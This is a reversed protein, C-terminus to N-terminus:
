VNVTHLNNKKNIAESANEKIDIFSKNNILAESAIWSGGVCLVNDLQLYKNMTDLTIGGTPIFKVNPFVSGWAKIMNTGGAYAAPFFKVIKLGLEEAMEIETATQIGPICLSNLKKAHKILNSDLHPSVVFDAGNKLALEMQGPTKVTGAGIIMNPFNSKVRKISGAAADSRFAIEIINIGGEILSEAVPVANLEDDITVVPLISTNYLIESIKNM